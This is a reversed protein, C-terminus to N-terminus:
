IGIRVISGDVIVMESRRTGIQMDDVFESLRDTLHIINQNSSGRLGKNDNLNEMYPGDILIDIMNLLKCAEDFECLEEYQYGSFVITTLEPRQQQVMTLLNVLEKAQLFPEGGSITIGTIEPRSLIDEAISATEAIFLEDNARSQPTACGACQKTCGQVWIVYRLGPGLARTGKQCVDYLNINGDGYSLEDTM